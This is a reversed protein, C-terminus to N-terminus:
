DPDGAGSGADSMRRAAVEAVADVIAHYGTCRCYNGSLHDRIQARDTTPSRELLEAACLLMGPTCFGCQLANHRVFADQLDAIAGSADLGELTTVERVIDGDVRVTCAGCVGHECGVHTATLNLDHRLFDALHMRPPVHRRTARGNVLVRVEVPEDPSLPSQAANM